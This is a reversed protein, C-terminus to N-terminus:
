PTAENREKRCELLTMQHDRQTEYIYQPVETGLHVLEKITQNTKELMDETLTRIKTIEGSTITKM